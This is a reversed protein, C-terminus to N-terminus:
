KFKGFSMGVTIWLSNPLASDSLADRTVSTHANNAYSIEAYLHIFDRTDNELQYEVGTGILLHTSMVSGNYPEESTSRNIKASPDTLYYGYFKDRMQSVGAFVYPELTHYKVEKIRLLYLNVSLNAALLDFTYPVNDGSYYFGIGGKIKGIPNALVGGVMGGFCNVSLNNLAEINSSIRYRPAGMSVDFGVYVPRTRPKLRSLSDEWSVIRTRVSNDMENRERNSQSMCPQSTLIATMVFAIAIKITDAVIRKEIKSPIM